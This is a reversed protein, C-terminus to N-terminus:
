VVLEEAALLIERIAAADPAARLRDIVEPQSLIRTVRALLQLHFAESDSAILFFLDTLIGRPGDFPIGSPTRALALFPENLNDAQPRRPHLLAVGNELATSHLQERAQIAMAMKEADWVYGLEAVRQCFERILSPKSRCPCDLWILDSPMLRNISLADGTVATHQAQLVEEFRKVEPEDALGIRQEFWHFIETKPFRWEGAVRQGPLQEREAMKRVREPTLHLYKALSEIDFYGDAM